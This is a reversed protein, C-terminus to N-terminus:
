AHSAWAPAPELNPTRGLRAMPRSRAQGPSPPPASRAYMRPWTSHALASGRSGGLFARPSLLWGTNLQRASPLSLMLHRSHFPPGDGKDLYRLVYPLLGAPPPRSQLSSSPPLKCRCKPSKSISYCAPSHAATDRASSKSSIIQNNFEQDGPLESGSWGPGWWVSEMSGAIHGDDDAGPQSISYGELTALRGLYM